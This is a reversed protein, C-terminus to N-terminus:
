SDHGHPHEHDHHSHPKGDPDHGYGPMNGDYAGGEPSFPAMVRHVHAGLGVLMDGIVADERILIRTREIRAQLHRNGIHWALRALQEPSHAMVEMLAEPAARVTLWGGDDLALGDGEELVRAEALDLLFDAGDDSKLRIRRRHRDDFALTVSGGAERAPWHGAKECRTARRM